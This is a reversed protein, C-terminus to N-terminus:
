NKDEGAIYYIHEQGPKARELYDQFSTIEDLNWSSTWRSLKALKDRNSTDEIIGL